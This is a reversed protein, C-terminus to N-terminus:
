VQHEREMLGKCALFQHPRRGTQLERLSELPAVSTLPFREKEVKLMYRDNSALVLCKREVAFIPCVYSRAKRNFNKLTSSIVIM